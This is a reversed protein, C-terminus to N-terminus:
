DGRSGGRGGCSPQRPERGGPLGKEFCDFLGKRFQVSGVRRYGWQDIGADRMGEICRRVLNMLQEIDEPAAERIAPDEPLTQPSM